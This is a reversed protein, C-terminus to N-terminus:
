RIYDTYTKIGKLDNVKKLIQIFKEKTWEGYTHQALIKERKNYIELVYFSYVRYIKKIKIELDEILIEKDFKIADKLRIKLRITQTNENIGLSELYEKNQILSTIIIVFLIVIFFISSVILYDNNILGVILIVLLIFSIRKISQFIRKKYTWYKPQIIETM